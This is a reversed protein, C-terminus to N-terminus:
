AMPGCIHNGMTACNWFPSDEEYGIGLIYIVMNM